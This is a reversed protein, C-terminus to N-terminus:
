YEKINILLPNEGPIIRHFVMSPVTYTTGIELDIPLQDELQLKWGNGSLVRIVRSRKDRHWVFSSPDARHNFERQIINDAATQKFPLDTLNIQSM